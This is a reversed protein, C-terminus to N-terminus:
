LQDIRKKLLDVIYDLEDISLEPISVSAKLSTKYSKVVLNGDRLSKTVITDYFNNSKQFHHHAVIVNRAVDHRLNITATQVVPKLLRSTVDSANIVSLGTMFFLFLSKM